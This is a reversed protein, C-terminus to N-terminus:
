FPNTYRHLCGNVRIIVFNLDVTGTAILERGSRRV